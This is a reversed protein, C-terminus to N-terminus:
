IFTFFIYMGVLHDDEREANLIDSYSAFWFGNMPISSEHILKANSKTNSISLKFEYTTTRFKATNLDVNFNSLLYVSGEILDKVIYAHSGKITCGIRTGKEDLLTMETNPVGSADVFEPVSWLRLIRVNFRWIKHGSPVNVDKLFDYTTSM